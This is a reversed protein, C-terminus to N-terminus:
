TIFDNFDNDNNARTAVKPTAPHWGVLKLLELLEEDEFEDLVENGVKVSFVAALSSVTYAV